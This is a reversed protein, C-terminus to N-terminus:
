RLVAIRNRPKGGRVAPAENFCRPRQSGGRIRLLKGGRVAPAENFGVSSASSSAHLRSSEGAFQPPRMSAGYRRM